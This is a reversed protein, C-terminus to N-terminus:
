NNASQVASTKGYGQSVNTHRGTRSGHTRRYNSAIYIHRNTVHSSQRNSSGGPTGNTSYPTPQRSASGSYQHEFRHVTDPSSIGRGVPNYLENVMFFSHSNHQRSSFQNNGYNGPYYFNRNAEVSPQPSETIPIWSDSAFHGHTKTAVPSFTVSEPTKTSLHSKYSEQNGLSTQHLSPSAHVRHNNGEHSPHSHHNKKEHQVGHDGVNKDTKANANEVRAAAVNQLNSVLEAVEALNTNTDDLEAQLDELPDPQAEAQQRQIQDRVRAENFRFVNTIADVVTWFSSLLVNFTDFAGMGDSDFLDNFARTFRNLQVNNTNSNLVNNAKNMFYIFKDVGFNFRLNSRKSRSGSREVDVNTRGLAFNMSRKSTPEFPSKSILSKLKSKKKRSKIGMALQETRRTRTVPNSFDSADALSGHNKNNDASNSPIFKRKKKMNKTIKMIKHAMVQSERDDEQPQEASSDEFEGMRKLEQFLESVAAINDNADDLSEELDELPNPPQPENQDRTNLIRTEYARFINAVADVVTWFSVWMNWFVGVATMGDSNFLRSFTKTLKDLRPYKTNSNMLNNSTTVFAVFKDMTFEPSVLSKMSRRRSQQRPEVIRHHQKRETSNTTSTESTSNKLLIGKGDSSERLLGKTANIGFGMSQLSSTSSTLSACTFTIRSVCTLASLVCVKLLLSAAM